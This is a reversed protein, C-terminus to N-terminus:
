VIAIIMTSDTAIQPPLRPTGGTTGFARSRRSAGRGFPGRAGNLIGGFCKRRSPPPTTAPDRAGSRGSIPKCGM